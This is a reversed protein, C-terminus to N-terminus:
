KNLIIDDKDPESWRSKLVLYEATADELLRFRSEPATGCMGDCKLIVEIVVRSETSRGDQLSIVGCANAPGQTLSLVCIAMLSSALATQYQRSTMRYKM